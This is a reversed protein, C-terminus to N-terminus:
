SVSEYIENKWSVDVDFSPRGAVSVFTKELRIILIIGSDGRKHKGRDNKSHRLSIVFIKVFKVFIESRSM